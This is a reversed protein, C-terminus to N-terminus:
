NFVRISYKLANGVFRANEIHFRKTGCKKRKLSLIKQKEVKKRKKVETVHVKFYGKWTEHLVQLLSAVNIDQIKKVQIQSTNSTVTDENKIEEKKIKEDEFFFDEMKLTANHKNVKPLM